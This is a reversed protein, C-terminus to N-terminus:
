FIYKLALQINRNGSRGGILGFSPNKIPAGTADFGGGYIGTNPNNDNAHNFANFLETRFQLQHRELFRFSKIISADFGWANPGRVLNYSASGFRRQAYPTAIDFADPNLWYGTFFQFATGTPVARSKDYLKQGAVVDPRQALTAGQGNRTLNLAGTTVNLAVGSRWNQIGQLSWGGFIQRGVASAEAFKWTPLEYTFVNLLRHRVDGVKPGYSGALNSFDQIDFNRPGDSSDSSGYSLNKSLTYYVDYTTNKGMRYNASLQLSNYTHRGQSTVYAIQGITPDIRTSTGPRFLNQYTTTLLKLGRSGSYTAQVALSKTVAYQVSLNYHTVYEDRRNPDVTARGLVLGKPLLNPNAGIDNIYSQPFPFRLTLGSGAPLDAATLFASFPVRPDIFSWDYYFFPQQPAYTVAAGARVVLKQDGLVDFVLGLRPALNNRDPKWMPTGKPAYPGFFDSTAINFPGTLPTYYEYRLGLNLQWRKTVRWDDQFYFGSQISKFGRGPNGPSVRVDRPRDAILDDLSTYYHTPNTAQLRANRVDRIEFGFKWTQAGRVWTLNDNIMYTNSISRLRSQFDSDGLLPANVWAPQTDITTNNRDLFFRSFGIRLENFLTPSFTWSDQIVANHTRVPFVQINDPRLQPNNFLQRVYNYRVASRHAGWQYDGRSLYTNEADTRPAPRVHFCLLPQNAIPNSCTKPAGSLHARMAANVRDLLLQTPINGSVNAAGSQRVGEYNFFFFLKDRKVPGGLNGGFQNFRLFNKKVGRRNNDFSNADLADNRLYDFATGHFQNTGSKTTLVIVGGTARGYEASFASSSTKIEQIADVSVNNIYAFGSLGSSQAAGNHEGFSSDVGDMTINNGFTPAGNFEIGGRGGVTSPPRVVVGAQLGLLSEYNRGNLPLQQMKRQDIVVGLETTTANILSAGGEVTVSEAVNGASLAFDFRPRTGANLEFEATKKGQFGTAQVEVVYRGAPLLPFEYYGQANTVSTNTVGTATNTIKV